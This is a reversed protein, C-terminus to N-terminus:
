PSDCADWIHLVVTWPDFDWQLGQLWGEEM